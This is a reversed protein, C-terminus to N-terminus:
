RYVTGLTTSYDSTDFYYTNRLVPALSQGYGSLYVEKFGAVELMRFLKDKNFWNMHNGPADRNTEPPIRGICYDLAEEDTMERFIRDLEDDDIRQECGDIPIISAATAFHALFLQQISAKNLPYRYKLKRMSEPLSYNDAWFFFHRDNDRYARIDLEINPTTVRFYGGPKLIRFVETFMNQVAQNTVHEIVHSTFVIEATNSEIPLPTLSMLDWNIDVGNRQAAEYYESERDVNTWAPHRFGGAGINYFKRNTVAAKDYMQYYLDINIKFKKPTVSIDYGIIGFLKALVFYVLRKFLKM